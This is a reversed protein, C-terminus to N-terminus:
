KEEGGFMGCVYSFLGFVAEIVDKGRLCGCERLEHLAWCAAEVEVALNTVRSLVPVNRTRWWCCWAFTQRAHQALHQHEHADEYATSRVPVSVTRSFPNYHPGVLRSAQGAARHAPTRAASRPRTSAPNAAMRSGIQAGYATTGHPGAGGDAQPCGVSRGRLKQHWGAGLGYFASVTRGKPAPRAM